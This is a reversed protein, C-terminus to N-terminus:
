PLQLLRGAAEALARATPVCGQVAVRNGVLQALLDVQM